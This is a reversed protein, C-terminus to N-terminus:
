ESETAFGLQRWGAVPHAPDPPIGMGFKLISARFGLLRLLVLTQSATHGVYCIIIIERDKPLRALNEEQLLELWFINITGPIHERAYDAPRRIDLLFLPEGRRIAKELEEPFIYNWNDGTDELFTQLHGILTEKQSTDTTM